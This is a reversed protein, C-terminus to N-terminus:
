SAAERGYREGLQYCIVGYTDIDRREYAVGAARNVDETRLNIWLVKADRIAEYTETADREGKSSLPEVRDRM